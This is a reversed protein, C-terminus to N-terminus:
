VHASPDAGSRIFDPKENIGLAWGDQIAEFEPTPGEIITIKDDM